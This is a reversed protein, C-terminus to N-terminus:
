AYVLRYEDLKQLARRCVEAHRAQKDRRFRLRTPEDLSPLLDFTINAPQYNRADAGSVYACLSGIATERPFARVDVGAALEAAHRGAVLGTAISEVYGEVGSIQGAFFIRPHTKLQLTSTLLAPANIYTNRHIQGYRLFEAREMGPIMRFVRAQEPFRMHNQFGVLNYSDARLNEQRLQVVAYPRRGTRPDTLGMPKMPGFRLTERGRAALEEIPLCAEFFRANDEPIHSPVAEAALLADVFREYQERDFPCNIYDGTGDLSKGYRSARFAISLDISDAEVIPSISDYFFLREAGTLRGIEEALAGSTLPGTAIITIADNGMGDDAITTAEERQLEIRPNEEIARSVAQAFLERDVTLAHGGPVRAEGAARLLLSDLRRLEEKLLWPATNESESKLSNSCVLEALRDTKHAPTPRVPRMEFLVCDDGARAIQWAAECGALGGGLIRIPSV